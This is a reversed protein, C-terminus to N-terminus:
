KLVTVKLQKVGFQKATEHNTFYIDFRDDYRKALRDNVTRIGVGEIKIKTGLSLRRPGAATVGEVPPKGNAALGSANRGCCKNCTCYATITEATAHIAILMTFLAVFKM